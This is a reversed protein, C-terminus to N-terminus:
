LDGADVHMTGNDTIGVGNLTDNDLTLTQGAAITVEGNDITVGSITSSTQVEITGGSSSTGNNITAGTGGTVTASNVIM